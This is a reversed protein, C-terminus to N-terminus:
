FTHSVQSSQPHSGHLDPQHLVQRLSSPSDQRPRLHRRLDRAAPHVRALVIAFSSAVEGLM